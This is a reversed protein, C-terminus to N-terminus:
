REEWNLSPDFIGDTAFIRAAQLASILDVCERAPYKAVQGGATIEIDPQASDAHESTDSALLNFFTFDNHTGTVVYKAASGGGIALYSGDSAELMVVTRKDGDLARIAAEIQEMDPRDVDSGHNHGQSWDDVRMSLDLM